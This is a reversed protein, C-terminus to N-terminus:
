PKVAPQQEKIETVTEQKIAPSAPTVAPISEKKIVAIEAGKVKAADKKFTPTTAVDKDHTHPTTDKNVEVVM